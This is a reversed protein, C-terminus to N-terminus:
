SLSSLLEQRDCENDADCEHVRQASVVVHGTCSTLAPCALGLWILHHWVVGFASGLKTWGPVSWFVGLWALTAFVVPAVVGMM